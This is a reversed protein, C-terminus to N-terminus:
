EKPKLIPPSTWPAIWASGNQQPTFKYSKMGTGSHAHDCIPLTQSLGCSCFKTLEGAAFTVLFPYTPKTQTM